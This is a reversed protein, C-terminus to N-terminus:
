KSRSWDIRNNGGKLRWIFMDIKGCVRKYKCISSCVEVSVGMYDGDVNWLAVGVVPKFPM